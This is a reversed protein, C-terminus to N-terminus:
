CSRSSCIKLVAILTAPNTYSDKRTSVFLTIKSFFFNVFRIWSIRLKFVPTRILDLSCIKLVCYSSVFGCFSHFHTTWLVDIHELNTLIWSSEHIQSLLDFRKFIPQVWPERNLVFRKLDKFLNTIWSAFRPNTEYPVFRVKKSDPNMTVIRFSDVPLCNGSVIGGVKVAICSQGEFFNFVFEVM